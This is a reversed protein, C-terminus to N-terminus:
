GHRPRAGAPGQDADGGSAKAAGASRTAVRRWEEAYRSAVQAVVDLLHDPVVDIINSLEESSIHHKTLLTILRRGKENYKLQPDQHLRRIHSVPSARQEDHHCEDGDAELRNEATHKRRVAFATGVSVSAQRAIERVSANPFEEALSKARRWGARGDAPRLRGDQGQRVAPEAPPGTQTRRISGVTKASLGVMGAIARDSWHRPSTILYLAAARRDALPPKIGYRIRVQISFILAEEVGGDFLYASVTSRQRMHQDWVHEIGYLVRMTQRHVIVPGLAESTRRRSTGAAAGTGQPSQPRVLVLDSILIDVPEATLTHGPEHVSSQREM